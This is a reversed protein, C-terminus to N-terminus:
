IHIVSANNNDLELVFSAGSPRRSFNRPRDMIIVITIIRHSGQVGVTHDVGLGEEETETLAYCIMLIVFDLRKWGDDDNDSLAIYSPRTREVFVSVKRAGLCM